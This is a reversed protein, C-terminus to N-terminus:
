YSVEVHVAVDDNSSDNWVIVYCKGTRWRMRGVHFRRATDSGFYSFDEDNEFSELDDVNDFIYVLVPRASTIRYTLLSGRPVRYQLTEYDHANLTFVPSTM